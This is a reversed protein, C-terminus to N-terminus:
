LGDGLKLLEFEKWAALLQNLRAVTHDFQDRQRNIFEQRKVPNPPEPWPNRVLSAVDEIALPLLRAVEFPMIELREIM